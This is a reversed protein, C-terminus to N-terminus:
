FVKYIMILFGRDIECETLCLLYAQALRATTYSHNELKFLNVYKLCMLSHFIHDKLKIASAFATNMCFRLMM